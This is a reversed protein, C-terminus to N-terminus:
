QVLLDTIKIFLGEPVLNVDQVTLYKRIASIQRLAAYTSKCINNINTDVSINSSMIFDTNLAKNSFPIDSSGLTIMDPENRQRFSYNTQFLLAETKDKNSKLRHNQMWVKVDTICSSM